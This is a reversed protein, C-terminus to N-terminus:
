SPFHYLVDHKSPIPVGNRTAPRFHWARVAAIVKEDIGYGIGKLLKEEIVNGQVDITIEVVVDGVVGSPVEGRPIRPDPFTQVLAPVVEDGFAPGDLESGHKSGAEATKSKDEKELLNTRKQPISKIKKQTRAAVPLTLQPRQTQSVVPTDAPLYLAVAVPTASGGEGHVVFRPQIFIPLTPWCLVLLVGIHGVTSVVVSLSWRKRRPQDEPAVPTQDTKLQIFNWV